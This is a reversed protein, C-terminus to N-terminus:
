IVLWVGVITLLIGLGVQLTLREGLILAALPAAFVPATSSLTSAKAAGALQVGFLWLGGSLASFCGTVGLVLLSRRKVAFPNTQRRTGLSLGILVLCAVPLRIGNAILPEVQGLAPKVLIASLAWCVAATLSMAIGVRTSAPKVDEAPRAVPRVGRPFAVLAVGGVVVLIGLALRPTMPEGLFFVALLATVLPYTSSIPMARAVGIAHMARINLSDGVAMGILVSSLLSGLASLPVQSLLYAEGAVILFLWVAVSAFGSRLSNLVLAPVRGSEARMAITSCAWLVASGLASLEGM